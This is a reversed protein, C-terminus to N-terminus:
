CKSWWIFSWFNPGEIVTGENGLFSAFTNGLKLALRTTMDIKAKGRIGSTGFLKLKEM